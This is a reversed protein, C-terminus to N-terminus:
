FYEYINEQAPEDLSKANYKSVENFWAQVKESTLWIEVTERDMINPSTNHFSYIQQIYWKGESNCKIGVTSETNGKYHLVFYMKTEVNSHYNSYVCHDMVTGEQFLDKKTCILSLNELEPFSKIDEESYYHVDEIFELEMAMIERTWKQHVAKLRKESWKLNIKRNLIKAQDLIDEHLLSNKYVDKEFFMNPNTFYMCNLLRYYVDYNETYSKYIKDVSLNLDRLQPNLKLWQRIVDKTNTIKGSIIKRMITKNLMFTFYRNFWDMKYYEFIFNSASSTLNEIKQGFWIKLENTAKDITFGSITKRQIFINKGFRVKAESASYYIKDDKELSEEVQYVGRLKGSYYFFRQKEPSANKIEEYDKLFREGVYITKM